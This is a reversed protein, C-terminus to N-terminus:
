RDSKFGRSRSFISRDTCPTRYVLSIEKLKPSALRTRLARRAIQGGRHLISHYISCIPLQRNCMRNVAPCRRIILERLPTYTVAGRAAAEAPRLALPSTLLSCAVLYTIQRPRVHSLRSPPCVCPAPAITHAPCTIVVHAGQIRDRTRVARRGTIARLMFPAPSPDTREISRPNAGRTRSASRTGRHQIREITELSELSSRTM